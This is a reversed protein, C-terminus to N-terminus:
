APSFRLSYLYAMQGVEEIPQCEIVAKGIQGGNIAAAINWATDLPFLTQVILGDKTSTVLGVGPDSEAEIRQMTTSQMSRIGKIEIVGFDTSGQVAEDSQTRIM